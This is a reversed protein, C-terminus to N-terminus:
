VDVGEEEEEEEEEEERRADQPEAKVAVGCAAGAAHAPGCPASVLSHPPPAYSLPPPPHAAHSAAHAARVGHAATLRESM